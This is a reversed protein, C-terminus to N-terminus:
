VFFGPGASVLQVNGEVGGATEPQDGQHHEEKAPVALRSMEAVLLLTLRRQKFRCAIEPFRPAFMAYLIDVTHNSCACCM